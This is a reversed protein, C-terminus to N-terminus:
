ELPERYTDKKLSISNEKQPITEKQPMTKVLSIQPANEDTAIKEAFAIIKENLDKVINKAKEKPISLLNQVAVVFDGPKIKGEAFEKTIKAIKRGPLSEFIKEREENTAAKTMNKTAEEQEKQLGYKELIGVIITGSEAPFIVKENDDLNQSEM